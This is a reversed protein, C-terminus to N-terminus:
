EKIKSSKKEKLFHWTDNDGLTGIFFNLEFSDEAINYALLLHDFLLLYFSANIQKELNIKEDALLLIEGKVFITKASINKLKSDMLVRDIATESTDTIQYDMGNPVYNTKLIEENGLMMRITLTSDVEIRASNLLGLDNKTLDNDYAERMGEEISSSTSVWHGNEKYTDSLSNAGAFGSINNLHYIGVARKIIRKKLSAKASTPKKFFTTQKTQADVTNNSCFVSLIIIFAFKKIKM